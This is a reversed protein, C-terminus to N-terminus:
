GGRGMHTLHKPDGPHLSGMIFDTLARLGSRKGTAGAESVTPGQLHGSLQKHDAPPLRPRGLAGSLLHPQVLSSNGERPSLSLKPSDAM